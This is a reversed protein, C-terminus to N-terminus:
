FTKEFDRREEWRVVDRGDITLFTASALTMRVIADGRLDVCAARADTSLPIAGAIDLLRGAANLIALTSGGGQTVRAVALGPEDHLVAVGAALPTADRLPAHPLLVSIFQVRDGPRVDSEWEYRTSYLHGLASGMPEALTSKGSEPNLVTLTAGPKPAYWILLDYPPTEYLKANQFWHAGFWTNLWHSGCPSGVNQTNWIPGIRARFTDHLLTEDRLLAFGNKVFLVERVQTAEFGMYNTVRLRAHTMAAHDSFAEVEAEMGDYGTRLAKEGRFDKQKCWTAAGSVDEIRVANERSVFKESTMEAMAASWREISLIATPNLPDHRVYCEMLMYLDGPRWGSRFVIKHPMVKQTMYMNCDIGGADPFMKRAQDDTLRLVEKRALVRSAPDPEVPEVTDDCVLSALAIDEISIAQIHHHNNSFGRAQGFNMLRSAGWRYRGDRSHRAALELAFIRTGAHSHYGGHSGYPVAGGDPTLEYLIRDFLERSEPDTFVEKRGLLEGTRLITGFSSYFYGTDNIGVDRFAWWDSWVADAYAKWEKAGPEDPYFAAALAHNSGQTQSRHHPGRWLGDKPRWAMQHERLTLILAKAFAEDEATMHGRRRFERFYFSALTAGEMSFVGQEGAISRHVWDFYHRLTKKLGEALRPDGELAYVALAPLGHRPGYQGRDPGSEFGGAYPRVFEVYDRRAVPRRPVTLEAPDRLAYRESAEGGAEPAALSTVAILILAIM